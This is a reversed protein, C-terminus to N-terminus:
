TGRLAEEAEPPDQNPSFPSEALTAPLQGTPLDPGEIDAWFRRKRPSRELRILPKPPSGSFTAPSLTVIAHSIDSRTTHTRSGSLAPGEFVVCFIFYINCFKIHNGTTVGPYRPM